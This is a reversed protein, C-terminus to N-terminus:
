LRPATAGNPKQLVFGLAGLSAAAAVVVLVLIVWGRQDISRARARVREPSAGAIVFATLSLLAAVGVLWALAARLGAGLGDPAMGFGAAGLIAAIALRM